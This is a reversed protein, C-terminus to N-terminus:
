TKLLVYEWCLAPDPLHLEVALVIRRHGVDQQHDPGAAHEGVGGEADDGAAEPVVSLQGVQHDHDGADDGDDLDDELEEEDLVDRPPPDV